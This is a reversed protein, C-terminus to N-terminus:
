TYLDLFRVDTGSELLQKVRSPMLARADLVGSDLQLHYLAASSSAKEAASMFASVCEASHTTILLQVEQHKALKCLSLAFRELSSPHQNTEPEEIVFLTKKLATLVMLCRLASRMGDGQVDLSLAHDPFLVTM